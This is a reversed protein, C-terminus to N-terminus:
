SETDSHIRELISLIRERVKAEEQSYKDYSITDMGKEYDIKNFRAELTTLLRHANLESSPIVEKLKRIASIIENEEILSQIEDIKEKPISMMKRKNRWKLVLWLLFLLLIAGGGMMGYKKWPIPEESTYVHIHSEYVPIGFEEEGDYSTWVKVYLKQTDLKLPVISWQWLNQYSSDPRIRVKQTSDSLERIRFNEGGSYDMLKVRMYNGVEISDTEIAATDRFTKIAAVLEEKSTMCSVVVEYLYEKSIHMNNDYNYSIAGKTSESQLNHTSVTEPKGTEPNPPLVGVTTPDDVLGDPQNVPVDGNDKPADGVGNGDLAPDNCAAFLFLFFVIHALYLYIKVQSKM